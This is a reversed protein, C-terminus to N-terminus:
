YMCKLNSFKKLRRATRNCQRAGWSVCNDVTYIQVPRRGEWFRAMIEANQGYATGSEIMIDIEATEATSLLAFSESPFVGHNQYGEMSTKEIFEAEMKKGM